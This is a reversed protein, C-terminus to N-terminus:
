QDEMEAQHHDTPCGSVLGGGGEGEVGLPLHRCLTERRPLDIREVAQVTQKPQCKLSPM